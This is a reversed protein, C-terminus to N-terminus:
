WVLRLGVEYRRPPQFDTPEGLALQDGETATCGSAFQCVAVPKETNLVNEVSGILEADLGRLRFGKRLELELTSTSNARRSGRPELLATGYLPPALSQLVSYDFPSEWIANFGLSVALPLKVFGKVKVRQRRDDSLYGYTNTFHVPYVDFDPGGVAPNEVSGRSTSWTYSAAVDLWSVARSAFRVLLGRYDRRAAALNTLTLNHCNQFGPDATPQPVNESCTDELIRRTKKILYTLEISSRAGIARQVGVSVEDAVEPQLHPDVQNPSTSLEDFFAFGYPDRHLPDAIVAGGHAAAFDQCAAAIAAPDDLGPAVANACSLYRATPAFTLRAYLPLALASPHMFRGYSGRVVTRADGGLDWAFGLRPQLAGLTAVRDGVENEYRAQDYRLGLRLTLDPRVRWVDQLYGAAQGGRFTQTPLPPTASFLFPGDNDTYLGGGTVNDRADLTLAAYSAGGKGEHSGGFGDAFATLSSQGELRRRASTQLHTYNGSSIQTDLDIVGPTTEDGSAPRDDVRRDHVGAQLEWLLRSSLLGSAEAQFLMSRQRETAAAEPAVFQSANFDTISVPASSGKVVARWRPDIQWSLKALYDEGVFHDTTESLNPTTKTEQYAASTFFWLRDRVLPGGLTAAPLLFTSADEEPDFHKGAQSFSANRFRVDFTGSLDNGGSKTILNVVGGTARGYEADFGATAFSIEEIADFNFTTGATATYPDTTDLGDILYVNEGPTAGLVQPDATLESQAVGAATGIVSLYSRDDAGISSRDMFERTFVQGVGAETPDVLARDAEEATVTIEESLRGAILEPFVATAHDLSVRVGRLEAAHFGALEVRVTYIGPALDPLVFGGDEGSRTLRAGGILAPSSATVVAGALAEGRTDRVTGLLSGTSAAGAPAALWPLMGFLVVLRVLATM